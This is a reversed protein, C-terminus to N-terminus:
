APPALATRLSDLLQAAEAGGQGAEVDARVAALISDATERRGLVLEARALRLRLMTLNRAQPGTAGVLDRVARGCTESAAGADSRRYSLFTCLAARAETTAVRRPGATQELIGLARRKLEIARDVHGMRWRINALESVADGTRPHNLGYAARYIEFARTGAEWAERVLRRALLVEALRDWAPAVEPHNPGLRQETSALAERVLGEAEALASDSGAGQQRTEIVSAVMLMVAATQPDKRGRLEIQGALVDRYAQEAGPFDGSAYRFTALNTLAILTRQHRPGVARTLVDVAMQQVAVGARYEGLAYHAAGLNSATVGISRHNDPYMARRIALAEEFLPKADGTRGLAQTVVGLDNLSRALGVRHAAGAARRMTVAGALLSEAEQSRGRRHAIWGALTLAAAVDPHDPGLTRRKLELAERALPEAEQILGLRDYGDALVERMEAELEPRGDYARALEPVQLDLLRRATVTDGVARDAGTAGFMEMLFGRVELLKDRERTVQASEAAVRRSQILTVVTTTALAVVAVTSVAVLAANRRVFKRVRYRLTDPRASVPLGARYRRIDEALATVSPYRREPEKRLAKLVITDLDGSLKRSLRGPETPTSEVIAREIDRDSSERGTLFPHRGTILEYLLVGLGHVDTATTVPGGLIQEPAAYEPTLVRMETRTEIAPGFAGSDSLVKGIGFDLLKPVGADTVLINGPKLDRHVVLNQHAYQVAACVAEFLELRAEVALGRENCYANLPRGEVYEMVFYPRGDPTVGADLLRAINPHRLAALIRRELRFRRLVEDSDKGRRIVKIAVPQELDETRHIALHVEGMGGRGLLRVLRYPGM